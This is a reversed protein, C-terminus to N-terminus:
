RLNTSITALLNKFEDPTAPKPFFYDIGSEKAKQTHTLTAYGSVGIIVSNNFRIDKRVETAVQYGSMKPLGVDLLIIDPVFEKILDLAAFGDHAVKCESGWTELLEFLAAVNDKNDEVILIKTKNIM